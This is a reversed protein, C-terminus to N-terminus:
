RTFIVIFVLISNGLVLRAQAIVQPEQSVKWFETVDGEHDALVLFGHTGDSCNQTNALLFYRFSSRPEVIDLGLVPM